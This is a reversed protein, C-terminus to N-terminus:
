AAVFSRCFSAGVPSQASKLEMRGVKLVTKQRRNAVVAGIDRLPAESCKLHVAPRCLLLMYM